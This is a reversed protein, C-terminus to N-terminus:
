SRSRMLSVILMQLPEEDGHYGVIMADLWRQPELRSLDLPHGARYALLDVFVNQTRGNGERFPHIVNLESLFHASKAAFDDPPLDRFFNDDALEEFLQNMNNAIFDPNCFQNGGKTMRVTRYKGAWTYIDSFFHRHVSRYHRVNLLGVPLPKKSQERVILAEFKDLEIQTKLGPRNKLVSTGSYCYPDKDTEYM